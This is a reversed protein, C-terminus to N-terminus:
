QSCICIKNYEFKHCICIFLFLLHGEDNADENTDSKEESKEVDEIFRFLDKVGIPECRLEKMQYSLLNDLALVIDNAQDMSM